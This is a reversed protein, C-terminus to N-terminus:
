LLMSQFTNAPLTVVIFRMSVCIVDESLQHSPFGDSECKWIMDEAMDETQPQLGLVSM